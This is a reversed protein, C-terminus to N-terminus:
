GRCTVLTTLSAPSEIVGVYENPGNGGDSPLLATGNWTCEGITRNRHRWCVSVTVQLMSFTTTGSNVRWEGSGGQASGGTGCYDNPNVPPSSPNRRLCTVVIQEDVGPTPSPLSKGQAQLWADWSTPAGALNSPNIEPTSCAVNDQRIQEIVRNADHVALSLHHAHENLTLQSLYAGLLATLAIALTLSALVVEVLTLGQDRWCSM